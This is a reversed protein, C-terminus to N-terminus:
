VRGVRLALEMVMKRKTKPDGWAKQLEPLVLDIPNEGHKKIYNQTASWSFLYALLHPLDWESECHFPPASIEEFPFPLTTYKDLVLQSEAPWYNKLIGHELKHVPKNVAESVDNQCYTWVAIIGGPKLVRKVEKYYKDHDFWHVAAAATVLDASTDPLGSKESPALRYELREHAFANRLQAESADTAIVKPFYGALSVAAQGNGCGSDWAVEKQKVLSALFRFLEDPYSPRASAYVSAQASFYDKFSM